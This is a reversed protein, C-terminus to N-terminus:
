LQRVLMFKFNMKIKKDGIAVAIEELDLSKPFEM